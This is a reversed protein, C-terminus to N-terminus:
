DDDEPDVKRRGGRGSKCRVIPGALPVHLLLGSAVQHVRTRLLADLFGVRSWSGSKKRRSDREDESHQQQRGGARGASSASTADQSNALRTARQVALEIDSGGSRPSLDDSGESGGWTELDSECGLGGVRERCLLASMILGHLYAATVVNSPGADTEADAARGDAVCAASDRSRISDGAAGAGGDVRVSALSAVPGAGAGGVSAPLPHVAMEPPALCGGAAARREADTAGGPSPLDGLSSRPAPRSGGRAANARAATVAAVAAAM